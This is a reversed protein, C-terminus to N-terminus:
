CGWCRVLGGKLRAGRKVGVVPVPGAPEGPARHELHVACEVDEPLVLGVPIRWFGRSNDNTTTTKKKKKKM